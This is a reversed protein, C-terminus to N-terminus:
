IAHINSELYMIWRSIKSTNENPRFFCFTKEQNRVKVKNHIDYAKKKTQLKFAFTESCERQEMKMPPYNSCVSHESINANLSCVGTFGSSSLM